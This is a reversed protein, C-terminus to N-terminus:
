CRNAPVGCQEWELCHRWITCVIKDCCMCSHRSDRWTPVPFYVHLDEGMAHMTSELTCCNFRGILILCKEALSPMTWSIVPKGPLKSIPEKCGLIKVLFPSSQALALTYTGATQWTKTEHNFWHGGSAIHRMRDFNAFKAAIDRSPSLRNSFISCERFVSNFSEYRETDPGLLPGFRQVFFPM